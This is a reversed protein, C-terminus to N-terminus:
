VSILKKLLQYAADKRAENVEVIVIGEGPQGYIVVSKLPAWLVAPLVALDEEGAVQIIAAGAQIAEVLERSITGPQNVVKVMKGPQLGIDEIGGFTKQREVKLDVIFMDAHIEQSVLLQATVDGVGIVKVPKLETLKPRLDPKGPILEGFPKQFEGRMEKPLKLLTVDKFPLLYVVGKRSIGGARIRESAIEKGDEAPTLEVKILQLTPLGAEARKRRVAEGGAWTKETVLLGDLSKDTLTPGYIDRLEVIQSRKDLDQQELWGTVNKKRVSFSEITEPWVKSQTLETQTIGVAVREGLEFAKTLFQRHGAHFHDWTGAAVVHKYEWKPM